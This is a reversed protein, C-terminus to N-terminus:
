KFFDEMDLNMLFLKQEVSLLNSEQLEEKFYYVLNRKGVFTNKQFHNLNIWYNTRM